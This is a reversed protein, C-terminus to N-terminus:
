GRGIGPRIACGVRLRRRGLGRWGRRRLRMGVPPSASRGQRRRDDVLVAGADDRCVAAASKGGGGATSQGGAARCDVAPKRSVPTRWVADGEATVYIEDREQPKRDATDPLIVIESELGKAGHVTMVRIRQGSAEAQRKIDIQEADLWILFGTLSPVEGREYALAQNLLEDIGDEAEDGLRAMLRRRGDHQVLVRELLDYPRLFDM